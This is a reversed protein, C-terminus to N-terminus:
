SICVQLVLTVLLVKTQLLVSPSNLLLRVTTPVSAQAVNNSTLQVTSSSTVSPIQNHTPPEGCQVEETGKVSDRSELHNWTM